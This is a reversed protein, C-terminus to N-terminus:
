IITSKTKDQQNRIQNGESPTCASIINGQEIRLYQSPQGIRPHVSDPRSMEHVLDRYAACFNKFFFEHNTKTGFSHAMTLSHQVQQAIMPLLDLMVAFRTSM